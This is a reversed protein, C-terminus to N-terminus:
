APSSKGRSRRCTRADGHARLSLARPVFAVCEFVRREASSSVRRLGGLRVEGGPSGHAPVRFRLHHRHAGRGQHEGGGVLGVPGGFSVTLLDYWQRVLDLTPAVVLASRRKDNIALVAVHSKGAGTPLVVVGRGRHRQWASLAESQYPRPTRRVRTGEALTTYRRAQDQYPAQAAILARVIDAYALAPARYCRTRPDWVCVSDLGAPLWGAETETAFRLELTGAVFSVEIM